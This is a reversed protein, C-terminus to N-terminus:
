FIIKTKVPLRNVCRKLLILKDIENLKKLDFELIVQGPKIPCVWTNFNGKGKGMRVELPKKTTFTFPIKRFM